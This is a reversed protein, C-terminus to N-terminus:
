IARRRTLKGYVLRRLIRAIFNHRNKEQPSSLGLTEDIMARLDEWARNKLKLVERVSVGLDSAVDKLARRPGIELTEVVYRQKKDQFKKLLEQALIFQGFEFRSEEFWVLIEPSRSTRAFGKVAFTFVRQLWDLFHESSTAAYKDLQSYIYPLASDMLDSVTAEDLGFRRLYVHIEQGILINFKKLDDLHGEYEAPPYIRIALQKVEAEFHGYKAKPHPLGDPGRKPRIKLSEWIPEFSKETM